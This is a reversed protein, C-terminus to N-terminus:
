MTMRGSQKRDHEWGYGCPLSPLRDNAASLNMPKQEGHACAIAAFCCSTGFRSTRLQTIATQQITMTRDMTSLTQPLLIQIVQAQRTENMLTCDALVSSM